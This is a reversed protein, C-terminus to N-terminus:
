DDIPRQVLELPIGDPDAFYLVRGPADAQNFTVPKSRCPVGHAVLREYFADIDDVFFAVHGNGPNCIALDNPVGRPSIYELLELEHSSDGPFRLRAIRVHAGPLGTVQEIAPGRREYLRTVQLGLVATYFAISRELNHVTLGTHAFAPGQM